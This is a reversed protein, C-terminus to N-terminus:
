CFKCQVEQVGCHMQQRPQVQPVHLETMIELLSASHNDNTYIGAIGKNYRRYRNSSPVPVKNIHAKAVKHM